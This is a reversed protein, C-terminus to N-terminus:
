KVMFVYRKTQIQKAAWIFLTDGIHFAKNVFPVLCIITVVVPIIARNRVLLVASVKKNEPM